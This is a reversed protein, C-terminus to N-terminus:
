VHARGIQLRPDTRPIGANIQEHELKEILLDKDKCDEQTLQMSQLQALTVHPQPRPKSACATLVLVIFLIRM